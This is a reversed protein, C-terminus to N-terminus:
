KNGEKKNLVKKGDVRSSKGPKFLPDAKFERFASDKGRPEESELQEAQPTDVAKPTPVVSTLFMGNAIWNERAKPAMAELITLVQKQESTLLVPVNDIDEDLGSPGKKHLFWDINIRLFNCVKTANTAKMNKTIGSVWENVSSGKAGTVRILDAQTKQRVKLAYVLRDNWKEM